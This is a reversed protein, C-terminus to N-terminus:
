RVISEEAAAIASGSTNRPMMGPHPPAQSSGFRIPMSFASSTTIEFGSFFLLTSLGWSTKSRPIASAMKPGALKRSSESFHASPTSPPVILTLRLFSGPFSSRATLHSTAIPMASLISAERMPRTAFLGYRASSSSLAAFFVSRAVPNAASSSARASRM